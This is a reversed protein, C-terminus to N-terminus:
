ISGVIGKSALSQVHPVVITSILTSNNGGQRKGKEKQYAEHLIEELTPESLHALSVPSEFKHNGEPYPVKKKDKAKTQLIQRAGRQQQQLTQLNEHLEKSKVSNSPQTHPIVPELPAVTTRVPLM